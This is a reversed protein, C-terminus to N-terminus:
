NFSYRMSLYASRGLASGNQLHAWYYPWIGSGNDQPSSYLLNNLTLSVEGRASFQYQGTLNVNYLPELFQTQSFNYVGGDRHVYLTAGLAKGASLPNSWGLTLSMSNEPTSQGQWGYRLDIPEDGEFSSLEFKLVKSYFLTTSFVGLKESEYSFDARLDVGEREMSDQNIPQVIIHEVAGFGNRTIRGRIDACLQSSGELVDNDCQWERLLTDYASETVM